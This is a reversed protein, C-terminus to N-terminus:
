VLQVCEALINNSIDTLRKIINIRKTEYSAKMKKVKEYARITAGNGSDVKSDHEAVKSIEPLNAYDILLHDAETWFPKMRKDAIAIRKAYATQFRAMQGTIYSSFLVGRIPDIGGTHFIKGDLAGKMWLFLHPTHIGRIKLTNMTKNM